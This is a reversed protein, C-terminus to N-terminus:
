KIGRVVMALERKAYNMANYMAEFVPNDGNPKVFEYAELKQALLELEEQNMIEERQPIEV